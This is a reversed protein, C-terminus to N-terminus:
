NDKENKTKAEKLFNVKSIIKPPVSAHIEVPEHKDMHIKPIPRGESVGTNERKYLSRAHTIYNQMQKYDAQSSFYSQDYEKHACPLVQYHM